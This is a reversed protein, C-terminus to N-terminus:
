IYIDTHICGRGIAGSGVQLQPLPSSSLLMPSTLVSSLSARARRQIQANIEAEGDGRGVASLITSHTNRPVNTSGVMKLPRGGSLIRRGKDREACM